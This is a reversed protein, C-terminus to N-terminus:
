SIRVVSSVIHMYRNNYGGDMDDHVVETTGEGDDYGGACGDCGVWGCVHGVGVRMGIDM